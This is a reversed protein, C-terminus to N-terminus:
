TTTIRCILTLRHRMGAEDVTLKAGIRDARKQLTRQGIGHNSTHRGDAPRTGIGNAVCVSLNGDNVTLSIDIGTHDGYKM